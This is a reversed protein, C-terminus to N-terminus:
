YLDYFTIIQIEDPRNSYTSLNEVTEFLYGFKNSSHQSYRLDISGDDLIEAMYAIMTHYPTDNKIFQIITGTGANYLIEDRVATSNLVENFTYIYSARANKYGLWNRDCSWYMRFYDAASWTYSVRTPLDGYFFWQSYGQWLTSGNMPMGAHYLVQSAFNTCDGGSGGYYPYNSNPNETYDDLYMMAELPNFSGNITHGSFLTTAWVNNSFIFVIFVLLVFITLIKQTQKFIKM